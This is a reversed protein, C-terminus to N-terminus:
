KPFDKLCCKGSPNRINCACESNKTKKIIFSKISPDQKMALLSVGYCYCIMDNESTSKQGVITRLSRQEHVSKDEGFYVIECDSNSCYYYAQNKAKWNWPNILHHTIINTSVQGCLQGSKPCSLKRPSQNSMKEPPDCCNSM